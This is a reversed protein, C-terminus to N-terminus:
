TVVLSDEINMLETKNTTKIKPFPMKNKQFETHLYFLM